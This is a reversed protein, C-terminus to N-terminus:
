KNCRPQEEIIQVTENQLAIVESSESDPHTM